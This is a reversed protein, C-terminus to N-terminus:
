IEKILIVKLYLYFIGSIGYENLKHILLEHNIRDFAKSMDLYIAYTESKKKFYENVFETFVMLNTTTSLGPVGGHQQTYIHQFLHYNIQKYLIKEFIKAFVNITTIPRYNKINSKDNSKFIPNIYSTKWSNRYIGTETIKNFLSLLPIILAKKCM